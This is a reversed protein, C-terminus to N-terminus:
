NHARHVGWTLAYKRDIVHMLDPDPTSRLSRCRSPLRSIQLKYRSVPALDVYPVAQDPSEPQLCAWYRPVPSLGLQRWKAHLCRHAVDIKVDARREDFGCNNQAIDESVAGVLVIYIQTGIGAVISAVGVGEFISQSFSDKSRKQMANFGFERM